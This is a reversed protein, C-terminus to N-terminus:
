VKNALPLKSELPWRAFNRLASNYPKSLTVIWVSLVDPEPVDEAHATNTTDRVALRWRVGGSRWARRTSGNRKPTTTLATMRAVMTGSRGVKPMARMVSACERVRALEQQNLKRIIARDRERAGQTRMSPDYPDDALAVGPVAMLGLALAGCVMRVNM